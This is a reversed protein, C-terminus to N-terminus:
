TKTQRHLIYSNKQVTVTQRQRNRGTKTHRDTKDTEAQKQRDTQKTQKEKDSPRKRNSDTATQKQRDRDTVTHTQKDRHTIVIEPLYAAHISYTWSTANIKISITYELFVEQVYLLKKEPSRSCSSTATYRTNIFYIYSFIFEQTNKSYQINYFDQGM